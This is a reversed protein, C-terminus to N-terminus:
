ATGTHQMSTRVDQLAGPPFDRAGGFARARAEAEAAEEVAIVVAGATGVDAAFALLGHNGLLVANTHPHAGITEAIGDASERSGRPAWPVVPVEDAQGFRLLAEYRCPLAQHALAFATAHPSHTHIVAGAEPRTRYVATHMPVIEGTVPELRGELVAGDFGVVALQEAELGRLVGSSTLLMRDEGLRLSVNAHGAHSMVGAEFLRRVTAILADREAACAM